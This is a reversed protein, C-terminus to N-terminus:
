RALAEISSFGAQGNCVRPVARCVGDFFLRRLFPRAHPGAARFSTVCSSASFASASALPRSSTSSRTALQSSAASSTSADLRLMVPVREQVENPNHYPVSLEFEGRAFMDASPDAVSGRVSRFPPCHMFCPHHSRNTAPQRPGAREPDRKPVVHRQVVPELEFSSLLHCPAHLLCCPAHLLCCPVPRAFLLLADCVVKM